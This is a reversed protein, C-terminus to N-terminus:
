QVLTSSVKWLPLGNPNQLSKVCDVKDEWCGAMTEPSMIVAVVLDPLLNHYFVADRWQNAFLYTYGLTQLAKVQTRDM